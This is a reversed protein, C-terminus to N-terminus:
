AKAEEPPLNLITFPARVGASHQETVLLANRIVVDHYPHEKNMLFTAAMAGRAIDEGCGAADFMGAPEGVQFDSDIRFLRGAYGVLFTGGSEVEGEKKRFGGDAFIRRVAPIFETVMFAFPEISTRDRPWGENPLKFQLLQGMRFSTTFGILFPGARFVKPDKRVTLSWGSIGASDGGMWVTRDAAVSGVICTM